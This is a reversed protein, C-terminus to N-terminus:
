MHNILLFFNLAVPRYKLGREREKKQDKKLCYYTGIFNEGSVYKLIKRSSPIFKRMTLDCLESEACILMTAGM